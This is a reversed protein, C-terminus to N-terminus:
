FQTKSGDEYRLKKVMSRGYDPDVLRLNIKFRGGGAPGALPIMEVYTSEGPKMYLKIFRAGCALNYLGAPRDAYIFGGAVSKGIINEDLKIEPQIASGAWRRERYVFLRGEGEKLDPIDNKVEVYKPGTACGASLLLFLLVSLGKIGAKM